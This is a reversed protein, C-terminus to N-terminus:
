FVARSTLVLRFEGLRNRRQNSRSDRPGPFVGLHPQCLLSVSEDSVEALILNM